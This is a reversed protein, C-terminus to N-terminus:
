RTAVGRYLHGHTRPTRELDFEAVEVSRFPQAAVLGKIDRDLRVGTAAVNDTVQEPRSAGIIAAAVNAEQLVWAVALAAM